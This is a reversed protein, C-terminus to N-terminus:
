WDKLPFGIPRAPPWSLGSDALMASFLPTADLDFPAGCMCRYIAQLLVLHGFPRADIGAALRNADNRHGMAAHLVLSARDNPGIGALYQELAESTKPENGQTAAIIGRALLQEPMSHGQSSVTAQAQEFKGQAAQAMALIRTLGPHSVKNHRARLIVNEAQSAENVWMYAAAVYVTPQPRMPDCRVMHNFAQKFLGPNTSLGNLLHVWTGAECRSLTLAQLSLPDLGNWYGMILAMNIESVSRQGANKSYRIARSYDRVLSDPAQAIDAKTIEGDLEGAAQSVLVHSMLDAHYLYAEALQPEAGIARAFEANAQRLLSVPNLRHHAKEHLEIGKQFAIVADTNRTGARQMRDRQREDLPINLASAVKEAIDTQVAFTDRTSREYHESWLQLADAARILQVNVGLREGARFVTGELIYSVGLRDGVEGPPPNMGKFHFASGRATVRLEPLQALTNTIEDSLGDAFYEDDPGNSMAPFPLVAISQVPVRAAYAPENDTAAPSPRDALGATNRGNENDHLTLKDFLLLGAALALAALIVKWVKLEGLWGM